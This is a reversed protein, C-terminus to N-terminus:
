IGIQEYSKLFKMIDAPENFKYMTGLVDFHFVLQKNHNWARGVVNGEGDTAVYADSFKDYTLKM